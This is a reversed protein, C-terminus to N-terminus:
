KLKLIEENKNILVLLLWPNRLRKQQDLATSQTRKVHYITLVRTTLNRTVSPGFPREWPEGLFTHLDLLISAIYMRRMRLLLRSILTAPEM